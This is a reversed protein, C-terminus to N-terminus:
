RDTIPPFVTTAEPDHRPDAAGTLCRPFEVTTEADMPSFADQPTVVHARARARALAADARAIADM